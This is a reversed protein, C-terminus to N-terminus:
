QRVRKIECIWPLRILWSYPKYDGYWFWGIGQWEGLKWIIHTRGIIM